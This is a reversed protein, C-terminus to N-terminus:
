SLLIVMPLFRHLSRKAFFLVLVRANDHQVTCRLNMGNRDIGFVHESAGLISEFGDRAEVVSYDEATSDRNLGYVNRPILEGSFSCSSISARLYFHCLEVVGLSFFITSKRLIMELEVDNQNASM